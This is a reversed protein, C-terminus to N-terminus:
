KPLFQCQCQYRHIVGKSVLFEMGKAVGYAFKNLDKSTLTEGAEGGDASFHLLLLLFCAQNKPYLSLYSPDEGKSFNFFSSQRMRQERLHTLLKGYMVYEMILLYPESPFSLIFVLIKKLATMVSIQYLSSCFLCLRVKNPACAM